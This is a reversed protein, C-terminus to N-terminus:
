PACLSARHKLTSPAVGFSDQLVVSQDLSRVAIRIIAMHHIAHELCYTLERFVSTDVNHNQSVDGLDDIAMLLLKDTRLDTLQRSLEICQNLAFEKDTELRLDRNRLGYQIVNGHSQVILCEFFELIHRVHQGISSGSLLETSEPYIDTQVQAIADHLELLVNQSATVVPHMMTYLYLYDSDRSKM